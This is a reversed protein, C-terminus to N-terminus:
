KPPLRELEHALWAQQSEQRNQSETLESIRRSLATDAPANRSLALRGALVIDQRALNRTNNRGSRQLDEYIGRGLDARLANQYTAVSGSPQVLSYMNTGIVGGASSGIGGLTFDFGAVYGNLRPFFPRMEEPPEVGLIAPLWGSNQSLRGNGIKSTIYYLFDLAVDAHPSDRTVAFAMGAPMAAESPSGLVNKGYRPHNRTPLPLDFASIAFPAQARFSPSDWSGTTIMLAREQVFYFTADDRGLQDYGPQMSLGVERAISLADNFAPSDVSWDGRLYGIGIDTPTLVLTKNLNIEVALKQTQSSVINGILMPGNAQSGAIPIVHNGKARIRACLETFSDFDTPTPTDGLLERWLDRNYYMRVTFMSLPIGYYELLNPRYSMPGVLNDVFTQRWPVTALDTGANYPNPKEVEDTLPRFFRAISEDDLTKSLQILDTATGGILQTKLWQPYTREPVAVQEVRVGPHLKEYDRALVDLAGRLGGELQWHAFRIVVTNKDDKDRASSRTAVQWVAAGFALVAFSAGILNLLKERKM